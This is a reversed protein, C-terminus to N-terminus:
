LSECQKGRLRIGLSREKVPFVLARETNMPLAAIHEATDESDLIPRSLSGFQRNDLSRGWM